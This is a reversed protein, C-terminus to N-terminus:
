KNPRLLSTTRTFDGGSRSNCHIDRYFSSLALLLLPQLSWGCGGAEQGARSNSQREDLAAPGPQVLCLGTAHKGLLLRPTPQQASGALGSWHGPPTPPVLWLGRSGPWSQQQEAKGRTRSPWAPSLLTWHPTKWSPPLPHATSCERSVGLISTLM